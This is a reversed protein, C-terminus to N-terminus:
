PIAPAGKRYIDVSLTIQGAGMPNNGAQMMIRYTGDVRAVFAHKSTSDNAINRPMMAGFGAIPEDVSLSVGGGVVRITLEVIDGAKLDINQNSQGAFRYTTSIPTIDGPIVVVPTPTATPIDAPRTPTAAPTGTAVPAPAPTTAVPAVCALLGSTVLVVVLVFLGVIRKPM